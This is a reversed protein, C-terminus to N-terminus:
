DKIYFDDYNSKKWKMADEYKDEAYDADGFRDISAMEIEAVWIGEAKRSGQSIYVYGVVGNGKFYGEIYRDGEKAFVCTEIGCLDALRKYVEECTLDDDDIMYLALLASPETGKEIKKLSIEKQNDDVLVCLWDGDHARLADASKKDDQATARYEAIDETFTGDVEFVTYGGYEGEEFGGALEAAKAPESTLLEAFSFGQKGSGGPGLGNGDSCAFGRILMFLLALVAIGVVALIIPRTNMGGKNGQAAEAAGQPPAYVGATQANPVATEHQWYSDAQEGQGYSSMPQQGQNFTDINAASVGFSEPQSMQPSQIAPQPQVQEYVVDVAGQVEQRAGEAVQQAVAAAQQAVAEVQQPAQQTPALSAGCNSCFLSGEKVQTGCNTCFM